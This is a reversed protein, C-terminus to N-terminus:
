RGRQKEADSRIAGAIMTAALLKRIRMIPVEL